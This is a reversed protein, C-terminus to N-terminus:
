MLTMPITSKVQHKTAQGKTAATILLELHEVFLTLLIISKLQHYPDGVGSRLILVTALAHEVQLFSIIKESCNVFEVVPVLVFISSFSGIM